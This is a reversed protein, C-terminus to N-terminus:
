PCRPGGGLTPSSIKNVMWARRAPGALPQNPSGSPLAVFAARRV